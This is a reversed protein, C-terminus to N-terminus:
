ALPSRNRAFLMLVILFAFVSFAMLPFTIYDFEFVIRQACSVGTAPCPLGGGPLMQLAHQYLAVGAGFISLVLSYDTMYWDRKWAAMGLLIIQPFLFIRQWWCLPCPEVGFYDSYILAAVSAFLTIAFAIWLANGKTIVEIRNLVAIRAGFFYALLMAVTAIQVIITGVALWYNLQPLFEM